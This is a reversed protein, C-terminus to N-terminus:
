DSYGTQPCINFGPRRLNSAPVFNVGSCHTTFSVPQSTSPDHGTTFIFDRHKIIVGNLQISSHLDKKAEANTPTLKM